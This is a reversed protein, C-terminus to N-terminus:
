RKNFKVLHWASQMFERKLIIVTAGYFYCFICNNNWNGPYSFLSLSILYRSWPRIPSIPHWGLFDSELIHVKDEGSKGWSHCPCAVAHVSLAPTEGITCTFFFDDHDASYELKSDSGSM